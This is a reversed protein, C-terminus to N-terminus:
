GRLSMRFRSRHFCMLSNLCLTVPDFTMIIFESVCEGPGPEEVGCWVSFKTFGFGLCVSM